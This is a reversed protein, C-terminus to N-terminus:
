KNSVTPRSNREWSSFGGSLNYSNNYGEIKLHMMVMASQISGNCICIITTDTSPIIEKVKSPIDRIDIQISHPIHGERWKKESRLDILVTNERINPLIMNEVSNADIMGMKSDITELFQASNM